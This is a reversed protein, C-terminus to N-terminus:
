GKLGSTAIGEVFSKQGLFYVVLIPLMAFLSAAMLLQTQTGAETVYSALGVEVTRMAEDKTMILPWLLAKWAGLFGFITVTVLAPRSLPIAVSLLFRLHDAGDLLAADFLDKPITAFFQRLLFIQFASAMWPVILGAYTNHWGLRIMIIYDPILLIEFPIMLTTLFLIFLVHKGFFQIRGFAYGALTSTILLGVVTSAAVVTSNVFYRAFPVQNWAILYNQWQPVRPILVRQATEQYTMLSTLIMYVFPFAALAAGVTLALYILARTANQPLRDRVNHRTAVM